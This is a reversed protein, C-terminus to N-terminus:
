KISTYLLCSYPEYLKNFFYKQNKTFFFVEEYDNTFRDNVSEPM